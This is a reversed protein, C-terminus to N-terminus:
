VLVCPLRSARGYAQLIPTPKPSSNRGHYSCPWISFQTGNSTCRTSMWTTTVLSGKFSQCQTNSPSAFSKSGNTVNRLGRYRLVSRMRM